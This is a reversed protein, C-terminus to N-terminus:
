MSLSTCVYTSLCLPLYASLNISLYLSYIPRYVYIPLYTSLYVSPYICLRVLAPFYNSRCVAFFM